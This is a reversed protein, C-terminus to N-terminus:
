DETEDFILHKYKNYLFSIILLLVGLAVFVITKSITDLHAVDYFFLKLLTISFLGIAGIRLHKKNKWIGLGILMLAYVGWLISLGLKYNEPSGAIDLWSILESSAVWILTLHLVIEFVVGLHTQMFDAKLYKHTTWLLGGLLALSLYRIGINFIGRDYYESLHQSLYTERLESIVFLGDTLFALIVLVILALNVYGLQQSKYWKINLWSLVILFIISYNVGWIRKFDLLDSNRHYQTNSSGEAIIDLSSGYYLQDFYLDIELKFSAYIVALLIAPLVYTLIDLLGGKNSLQSPYKKSFFLYNIYAFAGIFLMSSLFNINLLATVSEGSTHLEYGNYFTLWDHIISFFALAMLPYSVLEYVRVKNTRGIWLMLAAEGAWLLTVWHGDLQVPIAITIFVLVLGAVFYFLNKDALKQRFITLSVIFHIVANGVTFLGLYQEGSDHSELILYNMGYFTFSNLLLMTIDWIDFQEKQLLKYALFTLYFTLFFITSFLFALGFHDEINFGSVYWAIFVLWTLFFSVYYLPKWYKKFAIILIGVNIISMYSFLIDVRGSSESLFFPIAYAGVLGIHAIVQKDYSIAAVVTFVTFVVMMGFAVVQPFLDYFSYATFTIFYMAAMAGSVLIASYNSYKARLKLGTGLLGLGAVYGLIIRVLPSVLNNDISYKVGISLGIVTVIIGIKAILNEGIFKEFDISIGDTMGLFEKQSKKVTEKKEAVSPIKVTEKTIRFPEVEKKPISIEEPEPDAQDKLKHIEKRLEGIERSFAAQKVLLMDLKKLLQNIENQNDAM